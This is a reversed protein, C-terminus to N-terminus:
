RCYAIVQNMSAIQTAPKKRNQARRRSASSRLRAASTVAGRPGYNGPPFPKEHEMDRGAALRGSETKSISEQSAEGAIAAEIPRLTNWREILRGDCAKSPARVGINGLGHDRGKCAVRNLAARKAAHDIIGIAGEAMTGDARQHLEIGIKEHEFEEMAGREREFVDRHLQEAAHHIMHEFLAAFAGRNHTCRGTIRTAGCNIGEFTQLANVHHDEERMAAHAIHLATLHRSHIGVIDVGDRKIPRKIIALREDFRHEIM